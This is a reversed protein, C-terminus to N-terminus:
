GSKSKNDNLEVINSWVEDVTMETMCEMNYVCHNEFCPICPLSLRVVRVAKIPYHSYMLPGSGFIGVAPTEVAVALHFPASDNGLFLSASALLKVTEKLDLVGVRNEAEPVQKCLERGLKIEAVDGIVFVKWGDGILQKAISAFGMIPWRKFLVSAGPHIVAIQKRKHQPVVPFAGRPLVDVGIPALLDRFLQLYHVDRVVATESQQEFVGERCGLPVFGVLYKAQSWRMVLIEFAWWDIFRPIHLNVLIDYQNKKLIGIVKALHSRTAAKFVSIFDIEHTNFHYISGVRKSLGLIFRSGEPNSCFVDIEAEPYARLLDRVAGAGIVMDGVGGFQWVAIRKVDVPAQTACGDRRSFFKLFFQLLFSKLKDKWRVSNVM